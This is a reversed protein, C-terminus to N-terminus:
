STSRSTKNSFIRSPPFIIRHSEKYFEDGKLIELAPPLGSSDVMIGGLLSQEAEIQQPPIKRLEASLEEM